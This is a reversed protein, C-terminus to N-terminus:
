NCKCSNETTFFIEKARTYKGNQKRAYQEGRAVLDNTRGAKGEM